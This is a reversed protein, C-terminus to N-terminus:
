LSMWKILLCLCSMVKMLSLLDCYSTSVTLMFKSDEDEVFEPFLVSKDLLGREQLYLCSSGVRLM